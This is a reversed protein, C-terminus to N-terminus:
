CMEIGQSLKFTRKTGANRRGHYHALVGKVDDQRLIYRLANKYRGQMNQICNQALDSFVNAQRRSDSDMRHKLRSDYIMKTTTSAVQILMLCYSLYLSAKRLSDSDVEGINKRLIISEMYNHIPTSYCYVVDIKRSMFKETHLESFEKGYDIIKVDVGEKNDINLVINSPKLDFLILRLESLKKLYNQLSTAIAKRNAIIISSKTEILTQLDHDYIDTIFYLGSPFLGVSHKAHWAHYVKPAIDNQSALLTHIFEWRAFNKQQTDSQRRPMRLAYNKGRFKCKIVRNNSGKGLEDDMLTIGPPIVTNKQFLKKDAYDFPDDTIAEM